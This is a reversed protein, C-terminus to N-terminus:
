YDFSYTLTTFVAQISSVGYWDKIHANNSTQYYDVSATLKSSGRMNYIFPIGITYSDFASTRYDVAFYKDTVAYAGVQKVFDAKTQTYYRLRLGTTFNRSVDHLIEGNITHSSIGWDDKYYRYSLNISNRTSLLSVGKLAVADGTRTDPYNEFKAFKDQLVFHYPSSLFGQSTMHSYVAQVSLIPSILQNISLDIKGENRNDRPLNRKFIPSWKDFSQSVGIGLATNQENLQRVYNVFLSKGDYDVEKSYYAGFSLLNDGDDYTALLTPAYRTDDFLKSNSSAGTVADVHNGNSGNSISAATIADIRMKLGVMWQNSLKKFISFTPSYVQVNANDSYTDAGFSMTDKVDSAISTLELLVLSVFFMFLNKIQM